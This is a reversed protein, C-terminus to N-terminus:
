RAAFFFREATARLIQERESDSLFDLSRILAISAGYTHPAHTQYPSDSAWMCRGAGFAQVVRRILETLDLYPPLKKGLAYFASIKVMVRPHFALGCLADIDVERIEGDLGIRGLHDILVPTEPFRRCMRDIEAFGAPEILCSMGLNRQAAFAFMREYGSPQLWTAAPQGSLKPHIRFARIGREILPAMALDPRDVLPDIVATGVFRERDAAIVDLLCSNDIGFFSIQIVNFRTVGHPTAAAAALRGGHIRSRRRFSPEPTASRIVSATASWAHVHSDIM